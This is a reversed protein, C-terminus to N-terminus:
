RTLLVTDETAYHNESTIGHSRLRERIPLVFGAPLSQHAHEQDTVIMRLNPQKTLRCGRRGDLELGGCVSTAVCRLFQGPGRSGHAGRSGSM